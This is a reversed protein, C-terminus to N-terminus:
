FRGTPCHRPPIIGKIKNEEIHEAYLLYECVGYAALLTRAPPGFLRLLEVIDASSLNRGSYHTLKVEVPASGYKRTPEM